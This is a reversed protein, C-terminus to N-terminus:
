TRNNGAKECNFAYEFGFEPNTAKAASEVAALSVCDSPSGTCASGVRIKFNPAIARGDSGHLQNFNTIHEAALQKLGDLKRLKDANLPKNSLQRQLTGADEPLISPVARLTRVPVSDAEHIQPKTGMVPRHTRALMPMARNTIELVPLGWGAGINEAPALGSITTPALGSTTEFTNAM